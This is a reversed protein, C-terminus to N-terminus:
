EQTKAKRRRAAVVGGIAFMGCLAFTSPEPIATANFSLAQIGNVAANDVNGRVTFEFGNITSIVTSTGALEKTTGPIAAIMGLGLGPDAVPDTVAGHTLTDFQFSGLEFNTNPTLSVVFKLTEGTLFDAGSEINSDGGVGVSVGFAGSNFPGNTSTFDIQAEFSRLIGFQDEIQVTQTFPNPSGALVLNIMTANAVSGSAMMAAACAAITLIRM